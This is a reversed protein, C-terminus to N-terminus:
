LLLHVYQVGYDFSTALLITHGCAIGNIDFLEIDIFAIFNNEITNQEHALITLGFNACGINVSRFHYRLNSLVSFLSLDNDKLVFCLFVVTAFPTMPLWVGFQHDFGDSGLAM